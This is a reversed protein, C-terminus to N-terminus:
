IQPIVLRICKSIILGKSLIIVRKQIIFVILIVTLWFPWQFHPLERLDFKIQHVVTIMQEVAPLLSYKLIRGDDLALEKPEDTDLLYGYSWDIAETDFAKDYFVAASMGFRKYEAYIARITAFILTSM